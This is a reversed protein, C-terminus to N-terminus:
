PGGPTNITKNSHVDGGSTQIWAGICATAYRFVPSSAATSNGGLDTSTATIKYSHGNPTAWGIPTVTCTGTGTGISPVPPICSFPAAVAATGATIDQAVVTVNAIGTPNPPVDSTSFSIGASLDPPATTGDTDYCNSVSLFSVNPPTPDCAPVSVTISAPASGFPNVANITYTVSGPRPSSDTYNNTGAAFSAITSTGVSDTRVISYTTANPSATWSLAVQRSTPVPACTESHLINSVPSVCTLAPSQYHNSEPSQIGAADLAIVYYENIVGARASTDTYSTNATVAIPVAVGLRHVEYRAATATWQLPVSVSSTPAYCAQAGGSSLVPAPPATSADKTWVVSNQTWADGQKDWGYKSGDYGCNDSSDCGYREGWHFTEGFTRSTITHMGPPVPVNAFYGSFGGGPNSNFRYDILNGDLYLMIYTEMRFNGCWASSGYGEVYVDWTGNGNNKIYSSPLYSWVFANGRFNPGFLDGYCADDGAGCFNQGCSGGGTYYDYNCGGIGRPQFTAPQPFQVDISPNAAPGAGPDPYSVQGYANKAFYASHITFVGLAILCTVALFGLRPSKPKGGNNMILFIIAFLLVIFLITLAKLFINRSGNEKSSAKPNDPSQYAKDFSVLLSSGEYIKAQLKPNVCKITSPFTVIQAATWSTMGTAKPLNVEKQGCLQNNGDIVTVDLKPDMLSTGKGGLSNWFLDMSPSANINASIQDGKEYYSQNLGAAEIKASAGKTTWRFTMFPSVAQSQADLLQYQAEYVQPSTTSPLTFSINKTEGPKITVATPSSIEQKQSFPYQLVHFQAWQGQATSSSITKQSSNTVSCSGSVPQGPLALAGILSEFPKGNINVYCSNLTLNQNAGSLKILKSDSARSFGTQDFIQADLKYTGTQLNKPVDMNMPLALNGGAKIEPVEVETYGEIASIYTPQSASASAIKQLEKLTEAESKLTPSLAKVPTTQAPESKLYLGAHLATIPQDSDNIINLYAQLKGSATSSESVELKLKLPTKSTPNQDQSTATKYNGSSNQHNKQPIFMVGIAILVILALGSLILLLLSTPKKNTSLHASKEDM